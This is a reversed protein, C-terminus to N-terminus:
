GMGPHFEARKRTLALGLGLTLATGIMSSGGYSIFPLTMGKTPLMGVNVGINIIAQFGFLFFLGTGAARLYPDARRSAGLVGRVCIFVYILVLGLCAVYGLEEGAVSYIFDTHPDPLRGKVHGEGPGVGLLGGNAIAEHARDLQYSGMSPDFFSQIRIRVHPFATYLFVSTAISGTAFLAAWSVPLGSVFFAVIFASSLLLTQGVDPQLLLLGVTPTFLAFTIVAWPVGPYKQRQALLWAAIVVLSPKVFESPQLSFGAFRIWRQSGGATHGVFFVVAMLLFACLFVIFSFRRAWNESLMSSTLLVMAAVVVFAAHRIVYHMPGFGDDVAAVPGAALSLLMGIALLVLAGTIVGRDVTRWWEAILSKDSRGLSTMGLTTM